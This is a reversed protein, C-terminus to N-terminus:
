FEFRFGGSLQYASLGEYGALQQYQAFIAVGRKLTFNSALAIQMHASDGGDNEIVFTNSTDTDFAFNAEITDMGSSIESNLALEISPLWVGWSYGFAYSSQLGAGVLFLDSRQDALTMPLGSDGQESFGSIGSQLYDLKFFPYISLAGNSWSWQVLNNFLIQEGSTSGTLTDTVENMAETYRVNRQTSFQSAAYGLQADYSFNGLNYSAFVLLSTEESTLEGNGSIFQLNGDSFGVATGVVIDNHIRYDIGATFSGSDADYGIERDSNDKETVSGQASAFFGFRKVFDASGASGGTEQDYNAAPIGNFTFSQVGIRRQDLRQRISFAHSRGFQRAVRAIASIEDPSIQRLIAAVAGPDNAAIERIANCRELLNRRVAGLEADTLENLRTCMVDIAGGIQVQPTSEVTNQTDRRVVTVVVTATSTLADVNQEEITYTFTDVGSFDTNPVYSISGDGNISVQANATASVAVVELSDGDIDFDNALVNITAVSNITMNRADDVAVPAAAFAPVAASMGIFIASALTRRSIM